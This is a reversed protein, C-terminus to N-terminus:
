EGRGCPCNNTWMSVSVNGREVNRGLLLRHLVLCGGDRGSLSAYSGCESSLAWYAVISEAVM